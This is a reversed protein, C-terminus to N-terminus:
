SNRIRNLMYKIEKDKYKELKLLEDYPNGEIGLYRAFAPETKLGEKKLKIIEERAKDGALKLIRDEVIMHRYGNQKYTELSQAYIEIEMNDVYFGITLIKENNTIYINIHFKNHMFYNIEIIEQFLKFNYVECIIDLDSSGIDINIPITGVLIPSFDKLTNFIDLKKLVEYAKQQKENGEKLYNYNKFDINKM